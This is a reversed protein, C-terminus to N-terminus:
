ACVIINYNLNNDECFDKLLDSCTNEIFYIDQKSLKHLFTYNKVIIENIVLYLKNDDRTIEIIVKKNNNKKLCNKIDYFIFDLDRQKLANELNYKCRDCYEYISNTISILSRLEEDKCKPCINNNNLIKQM